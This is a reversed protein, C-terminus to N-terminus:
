VRNKKCNTDVMILGIALLISVYIILRIVAPGSGEHILAFMSESSTMLALRFWNVILTVICLGSLVWVTRMGVAKGIAISATSVAAFTMLVPWVSSCKEVLRISVGNQVFIETGVREQVMGMWSILQAVVSADITLVFSLLEPFHGVSLSLHLALAAFTATLLTNKSHLILFVLSLLFFLLSWHELGIFFGVALFVMLGSLARRSIELCEAAVCGSVNILFVLTFLASSGTM